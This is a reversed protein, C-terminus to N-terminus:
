YSLTSIPQEPFIPKNSEMVQLANEVFESKGIYREPPRMDAFPTHKPKLPDKHDSTRYQSNSRGRIDGSPNDQAPSFQHLEPRSEHCNTIQLGRCGLTLSSLTVALLACVTNKLM